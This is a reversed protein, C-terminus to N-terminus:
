DDAYRNTFLYDVNDKLSCTSLALLIQAVTKYLLTKIAIRAIGLILTGTNNCDSIWAPLVYSKMFSPNNSNKHLLYINYTAYLMASATIVCSGIRYLNFCQNKCKMSSKKENVAMIFDHSFQKEHAHMTLCLALISAGLYARFFLSSRLM